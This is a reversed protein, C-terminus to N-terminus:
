VEGVGREEPELSGPNISWERVLQFTLDTGSTCGPHGGARAINALAKQFKELDYAVSVPLTIRLAGGLRSAGTPQLTPKTAV